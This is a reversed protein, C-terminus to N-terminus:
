YKYHNLDSVQINKNAPSLISVQGVVYLHACVHCLQVKAIKEETIIEHLRHM